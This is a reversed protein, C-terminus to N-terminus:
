AQKKWQKGKNKEKIEKDKKRQMIIIVKKSKTKKM